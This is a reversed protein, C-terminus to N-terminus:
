VVVSASANKSLFELDLFDRRAITSVADMDVKKPAAGSAIWYETALAPTMPTM